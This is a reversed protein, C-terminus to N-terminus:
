SNYWHVSRDRDYRDISRYQSSSRRASHFGGTQNQGAAFPKWRRFREQNVQHCGTWLNTLEHCNWGLYVEAQEYRCVAIKSGVWNSRALSAKESQTELFSTALSLLVRPAVAIITGAAAEADSKPQLTWQCSPLRLRTAIMKRRVMPVAMLPRPALFSVSLIIALKKPPSPIRGRHLDSQFLQKKDRLVEAVRHALRRRTLLALANAEVPIKIATPTAEHAAACRKPQRM